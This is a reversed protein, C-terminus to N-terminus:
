QGGWDMDNVFQDWDMHKPRAQYAEPMEKLHDEKDTDLATPTNLAIQKILPDTLKTYIGTTALSAHGLLDQVFTIPAGATLYHVAISHRLVHPTVRAKIGAKRAWARIRQQVNAQTMMRGDRGPFLLESHPQGAVHTKLAAVLAPKLYVRRERDGKGVVRLAGEVLDVDYQRLGLAESVRLGCSYLLLFLVRDRRGLPSDDIAGLLARVQSVSLAKPLRRGVKPNPLGQSPDSELYGEQVLFGFFRRVVVVRDGVTKASLGRELLHAFHRRLQATTVSSPPADGLDCGEFIGRLVKQYEVVTRPSLNKLKLFAVFDALEPHLASM